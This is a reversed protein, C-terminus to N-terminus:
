LSKVFEIFEKIQSPPNGADYAQSVYIQENHEITLVESQAGGYRHNLSPALYNPLQTLNLESFLLNLRDIKDSPITIVSPPVVGSSNRSLAVGEVELSTYFSRAQSYISVKTSSNRFNNRNIVCNAKSDFNSNDILNSQNITNSNERQNVSLNASHNSQYKEDVTCSAFTLILISFLLYISKM